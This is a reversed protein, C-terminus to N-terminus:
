LIPLRWSLFGRHYLIWAVGTHNLKAGGDEFFQEEWGAPLQDAHAELYPNVRHALDEEDFQAKIVSIMRAPTYGKNLTYRYNLASLGISGMNIYPDSLEVKDGGLGWDRVHLCANNIVHFQGEQYRSVIIDEKFAKLWLLIQQDLRGDVGVGARETLREFRLKGEKYRRPACGHEAASAALGTLYEGKKKLSIAPNRLEYIGNLVYRNLEDYYFQEQRQYSAAGAKIFEVYAQLNDRTRRNSDIEGQVREQTAYDAGRPAVPDPFLRAFDKPLDDLSINETATLTAIDLTVNEPLEHIRARNVAYFRAAAYADLSINNWDPKGGFLWLCTDILYRCTDVVLDYASELAITIGSILIAGFRELPDIQRGEITDKDTCCVNKAVSCGEEAYATLCSLIPNIPNSDTVKIPM